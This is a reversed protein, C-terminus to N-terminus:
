MLRYQYQENKESLNLTYDSNEVSQCTEETAFSFFNNNICVKEEEEEMLILYENSFGLEKLLENKKM